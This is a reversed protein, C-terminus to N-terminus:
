GEAVKVGRASMRNLWDADDVIPPEKGSAVDADLEDKIKCAYLVNAVSKIGDNGYTDSLTAYAGFAGGAEHAGMFGLAMMAICRMMLENERTTQGFPQIDGMAIRLAHGIMEGYNDTKDAERALNAAAIQRRLMAMVFQNADMAQKNDLLIM